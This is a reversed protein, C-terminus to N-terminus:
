RSGRGSYAEAVLLFRVINRASTPRLAAEDAAGTSGSAAGQGCAQELGPQVSGGPVFWVRQGTDCVHQADTYEADPRPQQGHGFATHQELLRVHQGEPVLHTSVSGCPQGEHPTTVLQSGAPGAAADEVVAATCPLHTQLGPGGSGADFFRLFTSIM